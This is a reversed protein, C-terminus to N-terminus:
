TSSDYIQVSLRNFINYLYFIYLMHLNIMLKFYHLKKTLSLIRIELKSVAISHAMGKRYARDSAMAGLFGDCYNDKFFSYMSVKIIVERTNTEMDNYFKYVEYTSNLIKIGM